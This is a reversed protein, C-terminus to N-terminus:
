IKYGTIKEWSLNYGFTTDSQSTKKHVDSIRESKIMMELEPNRRKM